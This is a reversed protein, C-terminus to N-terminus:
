LYGSSRAKGTANHLSVGGAELDSAMTAAGSGELDAAPAGPQDDSSRGNSGVRDIAECAQRWHEEHRGEPGGAREWIAHGHRRIRHERDQDM